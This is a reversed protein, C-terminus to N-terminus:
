KDDTSGESYEPDIYIVGPITEHRQTQAIAATNHYKGPQKGVGSTICFRINRGLALLLTLDLLGAQRFSNSEFDLAM